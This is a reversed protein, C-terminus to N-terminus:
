FPSWENLLEKIKNIIEGSNTFGFTDIITVGYLLDECVISLGYLYNDLASSRVLTRGLIKEIVEKVTIDAQSKERLKKTILCILSILAIKNSLKESSLYGSSFNRSYINCQEKYSLESLEKTFKEVNNM